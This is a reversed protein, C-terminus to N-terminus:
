KEHLERSITLLRFTNFSLHTFKTTFQTFDAHNVTFKFQFLFKSNKCTTKSSPSDFFTYPWDHKTQGISQSKKGHPKGGKGLSHLTPITAYSKINKGMAMPGKKKKKKFKCFRLPVHTTQRPSPYLTACRCLFFSM